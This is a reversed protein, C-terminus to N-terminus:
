VMAHGSFVEDSNHAIQNQLLSEFLLVHASFRAIVVAGVRKLTNVSHRELEIWKCYM